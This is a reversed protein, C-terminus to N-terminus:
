QIIEVLKGNKVSFTVFHYYDVTQSQARVGAPTARRAPWAFERTLQIVHAVLNDNFNKENLDDDMGLARFRDTQGQCNVLFRVRILGSENKWEDRYKYKSKFEQAVAKPTEDMPTKLHYGQWVWDEKCLTFKPNDTKPDFPIDGVSQASAAVHTWITLFFIAIRM